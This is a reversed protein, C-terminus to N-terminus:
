SDTKVNCTKLVNEIRKLGETVIQTPLTFVIRFWGPDKCYLAQSPMLYVRAAFFTKFLEMEAEHTNEKLFKSFNAWVFFGAQAKFTPVGIANLRETCLKYTERMRKLNTPFYTSSLWEKDSIIDTLKRQVIIPVSTFYSLQALVEKIDPNCTHIVGCRFGSLCFDKSFGWLMHTRMPDPLTDLSLVSTFTATEDFISLAYIEDMVVHLEHRSAFNLIDMILQKSYITGMPNHPNILIIGRVNAGSAVADQYGSELKEMTLKFGGSEDPDHRLDINWIQTQARHGTDNTVRYYYPSPALMYDGPDVITHSLLDIASGLGNTVVLNDADVPKSTKLQDTLLSAIADRFTDTGRWEHYYMATNPITSSQDNIKKSLLDECMKNEAMGFDIFGQPNKDPNWQNALVQLGWEDMFNPFDMSHQGRKSLYPKAM